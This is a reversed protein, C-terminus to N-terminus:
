TSKILSSASRLRQDERDLFSQGMEYARQVEIMRAVQSVADVNSGELFGQVITANEIPITQGDVRFRVGDERILDAAKEFTVLGIQGLPVSDASITGDSSITISTADGPIFVPAAGADLLRYGDPTLLDGEASPIFAGARTLRIGAPTEIQFFGDGEIALDFTGGTQTLGGQVDTTFRGASSALSISMDRDPSRKVHETFIVNESRYGTTAMNAMNNAVAQMEKLLGSQRSITAYITNSM